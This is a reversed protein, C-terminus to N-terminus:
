AISRLLPADLFRQRSSPSHHRLAIVELELHVAPSVSLPAVLLNSASICAPSVVSPSIFEGSKEVSESNQYPCFTDLRLLLKEAQDM